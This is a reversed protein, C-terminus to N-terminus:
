FIKNDNIIASVLKEGKYELVLDFFKADTRILGLFIKDGEWMPLNYMEDRDIWELVGEDCETIEGEYGDATYLHMKENEYIDSKFHVVGRYQYSTLTLGTEEFTERLVCQTPSEGEEVRGGIGIWKDKNVDDEKKIRHLMLYKNNNQIYCLTTEKMEDIM